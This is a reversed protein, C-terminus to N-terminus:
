QDAGSSDIQTVDALTFTGFAHAHMFVEIAMEGDTIRDRLSPATLPFLYKHLQELTSRGLRRFRSVSWDRLAYDAHQNTM